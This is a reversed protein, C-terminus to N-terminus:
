CCKKAGTSLTDPLQQIRLWYQIYPHIKNPLPSPQLVMGNQYLHAVGPRSEYILVTKFQVSIQFLIFALKVSQLFHTETYWYM